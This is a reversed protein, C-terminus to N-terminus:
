KKSLESATIPTLVSLEVDLEALRKELSAKEVKKGDVVTGMNPLITGGVAKLWAEIDAMEGVVKFVQLPEKEVLSLAKMLPNDQFGKPILVYALEAM